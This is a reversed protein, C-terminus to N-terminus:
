LGAESYYFKSYMVADKWEMRMSAKEEEKNKEKEWEQRQESSYLAVQCVKQEYLERLFCM